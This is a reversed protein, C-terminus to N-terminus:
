MFYMGFAYSFLFASDIGGLLTKADSGDIRSGNRNM